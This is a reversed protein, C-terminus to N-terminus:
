ALLMLRRSSEAAAAAGAGSGRCTDSSFRRSTLPLAPLMM